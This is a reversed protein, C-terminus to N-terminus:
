QSRIGVIPMISSTFACALTDNTAARAAACQAPSGGFDHGAAALKRGGAGVTSFRRCLFPLVAM